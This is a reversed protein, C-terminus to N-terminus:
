AIQGKLIVPKTLNDQYKFQLYTYVFQELMTFHEEVSHQQELIKDDLKQVCIILDMISRRNESVQVRTMNLISLSM